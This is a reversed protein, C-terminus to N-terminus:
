STAADDGGADPIAAALARLDDQMESSATVRGLSAAIHDPIQGSAKAILALMDFADLVICIDELQEPTPVKALAEDRQALQAQLNENSAELENMYANWPNAVVRKRLSAVEEARRELTAELAARDLLLSNVSEQLDAWLQEDWPDGHLKQGTNLSRARMFKLKEATIPLQTREDSPHLIGPYDRIPRYAERAAHLDDTM